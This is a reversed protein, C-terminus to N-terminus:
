HPSAHAIRHLCVCTIRFQACDIACCTAHATSTRLRDRECREQLSFSRMAPKRAHIKIFVLDRNSSNPAAVHKAAANRLPHASAGGGRATQQKSNATQQKSNAKQKKSKAKQKKCSLLADGRANAVGATGAPDTTFEWSLAHTRKRM